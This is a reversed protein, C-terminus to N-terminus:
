GTRGGTGPQSYDFRLGSRQGLVQKSFIFDEPATIGEVAVSADDLVQIDDVFLNNGYRNISRFRLLVESGTSNLAFKKTKWEDTKPYFPATMEPVTRLAVGGSYFLTQWTAGCNESIQVRLSDFYSQSYISFNILILLVTVVLSKKM